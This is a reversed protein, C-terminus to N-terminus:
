RQGRRWLMAAAHHLTLYANWEADIVIGRLDRTLRKRASDLIDIAAQETNQCDPRHGWLDGACECKTKM